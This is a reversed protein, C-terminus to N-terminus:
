SEDCRSSPREDITTDDCHSVAILGGGVEQGEQFAPATPSRSGDSCAGALIAYGLTLILINLRPTKM